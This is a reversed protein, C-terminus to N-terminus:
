IKLMIMKLVRALYNLYDIKDDEKFSSEYDMIGYSGDEFLFLNDLRLENAEIVPLNTPKVDVIKPLKIGYARLSKEKLGESLVKSTIDKNQYAIDTM